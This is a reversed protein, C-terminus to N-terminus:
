YVFKVEPDHYGEHRRTVEGHIELAGEAIKKQTDLGRALAHLEYLEHSKEKPKLYLFLM